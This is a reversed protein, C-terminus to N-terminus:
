QVNGMKRMAYEVVKVPVGDFAKELDVFWMYLKKQKVLCEEQIQRLIFVADITGKCPM